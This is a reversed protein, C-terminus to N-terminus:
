AAEEFYHQTTTFRYLIFSRADLMGVEPDGAWKAREYMWETFWYEAAVEADTLHKSGSM